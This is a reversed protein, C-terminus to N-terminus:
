TVGVIVSGAEQLYGLYQQGWPTKTFVIQTITLNKAWEPQVLTSSTGEDSSGIVMGVPPANLNFGGNPFNTSVGSQRADSFYTSPQTNPTILFLAATACNYVALTYTIGDVAGSYCPVLAIARNLAYQPYPSNAILNSPWASAPIVVTNTLYSQFDTLNPTNPTVFAM